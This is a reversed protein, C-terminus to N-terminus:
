MPQKKALHIIMRGDSNFSTLCRCCYKYNM